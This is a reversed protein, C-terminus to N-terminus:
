ELGKTVVDTELLGPHSAEVTENALHTVLRLRHHRVLRQRLIM